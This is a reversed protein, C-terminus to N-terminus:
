LQIEGYSTYTDPTIEFLEMECTEDRLSEHAGAMAYVGSQNRDRFTCFRSVLAASGSLVNHRTAYQSHLTGCLLEELPAETNQRSYLRTPQMSGDMIRGPSFPAYEGLTGIVTSLELSEAASRDLWTQYEVDNPEVDNGYRDCVTLVPPQFFIYRFMKYLEEPVVKNYDWVLIGQGIELELRGAVPPMPIYEGDDMLSFLSPLGDRWYGAGKRNTQWGGIGSKSKRDSKDYYCLLADGWQGPGSAWVPDALPKGSLIDSNQVHCIAKGSENTLNLIFPIFVHNARNQLVEWNGEENYHGADEYPNYRVDALMQMQLRLRTERDPVVYPRESCSFIKGGVFSWVAKNGMIDTYGVDPRLLTQFLWAIGVTAEGSYIPSLSFLRARDVISIGDQQRDSLYLRFGEPSLFSSSDRHYNVRVDYVKESTFEELEPAILESVQNSTYTVNISNYVSDASIYADDSTWEVYEYDMGYLANWNWVHWQGAKQMLHLDYPLMLNDLVQRVTMYDGSDRFADTMIRDNTVADIGDRMTDSHLCVESVSTSAQALCDELIGLVTMVPSSPMFKLRDLIALDSFTLEVEYGDRYSFPEEYLEPDLTGSWYLSGARYVDLRVSAPVTTYLDLFQRDTASVLRLTASSSMVPDHKAMRNWELAVADVPFTLQGAEYGSVSEQWIEVRYRIDRVSVFEGYYRLHMM